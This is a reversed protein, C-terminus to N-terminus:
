VWPRGHEFVFSFTNHYFGGSTDIHLGRARAVINASPGPGDYVEWNHIAMVGMDSQHHTRIARHQTRIALGDSDVLIAQNGDKKGRARRMYLDRFTFRRYAAPAAVVTAEFNALDNSM